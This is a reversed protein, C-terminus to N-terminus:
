AFSASLLVGIIALSIFVLSIITVIGIFRFYLKLNKFSDGLTEQDITKIAAQAKSGFRFLYLSLFFVVVAMVFYILGLVLGGALAAANVERDPVKPLLKEFFFGSLVAMVAVIGSYIFGLIGLFRGWMAMERLNSGTSTDITLENQLLDNPTEMNM